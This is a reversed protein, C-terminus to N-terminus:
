PPLTEFLAALGQGGLSGTVALGCRAATSRGDLLLGSFLRVVLVASAAGFPRGSALAGGTANFKAAPIDLVKAFAIAQVASSENLEFRDAELPNKSDARRRLERVAELPAAAEAGPRAGVAATALLRLAPPRGLRKWVAESAVIVFAAGDGPQSTNAATLTSEGDRFAQMEPMKGANSPAEDRSDTPAEGFAAIERALRGTQAAAAGARRALIAYDDQQQRDIKAAAALVEAAELDAINPGSEADLFRPPHLSSRPRSLRWPATSLSEAGGAAVIEAEDHAVMRIAALIADLGSACQRDLTLASATDPLGAALGALRAPNGGESANGLVIASVDGASLKADDLAASIARAALQDVRRLRHLGGVRGIATRRAAIVYAQTYSRM